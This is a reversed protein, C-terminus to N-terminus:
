PNNGVPVKKFATQAEISQKPHKSLNTIWSFGSQELLKYIANTRYDVKFNQQIYKLIADGTLRGGSSSTYLEEIYCSLQKKQPATLYSDRGKNKKADLGKVGNALYKAVWANVSARTVKLRLAVETRSNGELFLAVSLLRIRKHPAKEARSLALIEEASYTKM